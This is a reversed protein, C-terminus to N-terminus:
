SSPNDRLDTSNILGRVAKAADDASYEWPMGHVEFLAHGFENSEDWELELLHCARRTVQDSLFHDNFPDPLLPFDPDFLHVVYGDLGCAVDDPSLQKVQQEEKIVSADSPDSNPGIGEAITSLPAGACFAVEPAGRELRQALFFLRGENM